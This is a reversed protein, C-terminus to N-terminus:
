RNRVQPQGTGISPDTVIGNVTNTKSWYKNINHVFSNALNAVLWRILSILKPFLCYQFDFWMELTTHFFKRNQIQKLKLFADPIMVSLLCYCNMIELCVFVIYKFWIILRWLTIHQFQFDRFPHINLFVQCLDDLVNNLYTFYTLDDVDWARSEISHILLDNTQNRSGQVSNKLM